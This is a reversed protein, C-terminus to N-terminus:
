GGVSLTNVWWSLAPLYCEIFRVQSRRWLSPRMTPSQWGYALCPIGLFFCVYMFCYQSFYSHSLYMLCIMFSIHPSCQPLLQVPRPSSLPSSFLCLQYFVPSTKALVIVIVKDKGIYCFILCSCKPQLVLCLCGNSLNLTPVQMVVCNDNGLQYEVCM